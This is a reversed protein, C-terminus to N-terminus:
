PNTQQIGITGATGNSWQVTIQNTGQGSTISGGTVTWVYNAGAVAPVSYTDIGNACINANGTILPQVACIPLGTYKLFTGAGGVAYALQPSIVFVKEITTTVPSAMPLWSSGNDNTVYILGNVGAAFGFGNKIQVTHLAATTPLINTWNAGANTTKYLGNTTAAFGTNASVFYLSWISQGFSMPSWTVGDNTSKFLTSTGAGMTNEAGAYVVGAGTSFVTHLLTNENNIEQSVTSNTWSGGANNTKYIMGEMSTYNFDYREGVAYGKTSNPFMVSHLRGAQTTAADEILNWSNGGNTTQIIGNGVVVGTYSNTFWVDESGYFYVQFLSSYTNNAGGDTTTFAFPIQDGAQYAWGVSMGFDPNATDFWCGYLNRPPTITLPNWTQAQTTTITIALLCVMLLHKM